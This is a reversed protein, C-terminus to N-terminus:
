KREGEFVPQVAGCHACNPLLAHRVRHCAPCEGFLATGCAPCTYTEEPDGAGGSPVVLRNVTRRTWFLFRRPGTRIPYECIPCLFREYAERYQRLLWHMSPAAARRLLIVLLRVVVLLLVGILIYKFWRSPFYEHVVLAVKVLVAAGVALYLPFYLSRRWRYLVGAAVVLIPVLITLQLFALWLHHRQCLRTYEERAPRRQDELRTEVEARERVIAQQRTMAAAMMQSLEQYKRQSDLFQQQSTALNGQEAESIAIGKQLGLKQLELLQAITQQLNRSTDGVVRQQDTLNGIERRVEELRQDLDRGQAVLAQDVFRNEIATYDPGPLERLDHVLFGLLWFVLVALVVTFFRIALRSGWSAKAKAKAPTPAPSMM